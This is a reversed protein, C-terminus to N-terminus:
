QGQPISRLTKSVKVTTQAPFGETRVEIVDFLQPDVLGVNGRIGLRNPAIKRRPSIGFCSFISRLFGVPLWDDLQESQLAPVRQTAKM